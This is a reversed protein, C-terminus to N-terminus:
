LNLKNIYRLIENSVKMHGYQDWHGDYISDFRKKHISYDANFVPEMDIVKFGNENAKKIISKRMTKFFSDKSIPTQQYLSNRDSDIVLITRKREYDTKRINKLNYIFKDIANKGLIFREPTDNSTSEIINAAFKQKVKKHKFFLKLYNNNPDLIELNYVLYRSLTSRKLIFDILTNALNQQSPLSIFNLNENNEDFYFQGLGKRRGKVAYKKFSEDFDNAIIPIVLIVEGLPTLNEAYKLSAIYNPLAMGSSAIATSIIRKKTNTQKNNLIGHFSESNKVQLAEVFSDGIALLQINSNKNEIFNYLDINSFQGIDNTTKLAVQNFPRFKGRSWTGKSYPKRRHLCNLNIPKNQSCEIPKELPFLSRSPAIRAFLELLLFSVTFGICISTFKFIFEKKEKM